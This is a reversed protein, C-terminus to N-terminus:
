WYPKNYDDVLRKRRPTTGMMNSLLDSLTTGDGVQKKLRRLDDAVSEELPIYKYKKRSM